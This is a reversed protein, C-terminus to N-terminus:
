KTHSAGWFFFYKYISALIVMAAVMTPANDLVVAGVNREGVEEIVASIGNAVTEADKIGDNQYTTTADEYKLLIGPENTYKAVYNTPPKKHITCGDSVITMLRGALSHKNIRKENRDIVAEYEDNLLGTRVMKETPGVYSPGAKSVASIM